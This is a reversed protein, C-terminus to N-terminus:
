HTYTETRPQGDWPSLHLYSELKVWLTGNSDKRWKKRIPTDRPELTPIVRASLATPNSNLVQKKLRQLQVTHPTVAIVRYFDHNVQDYGWVGHMILGVVPQGTRKAEEHFQEWWPLEAPQVEPADDPPGDTAMLKDMLEAASLSAPHTIVPTEPTPATNM